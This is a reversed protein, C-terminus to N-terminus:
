LPKKYEFGSPDSFTLAINDVRILRLQLPKDVIDNLRFVRDNMIVKPDTSSARVGAVRLKELFEYVAPNAVPERPAPPVIV